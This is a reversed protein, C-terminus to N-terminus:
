LNFLPHRLMRKKTEAGNMMSQFLPTSLEAAGGWALPVRVSWPREDGGNQTLPLDFDRFMLKCCPMYGSYSLSASAKPM